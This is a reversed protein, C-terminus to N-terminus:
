TKGGNGRSIGLLKEVFEYGDCDIFEIKVNLKKELWGPTIDDLFMDKDYRLMASSLFLRSGLDKGRLQHYIDKGTLLGAVTINQGFFDNTIPYVTCDLNPCKETLRDVLKKIFGCAATGTAISCKRPKIDYGELDELMHDFEDSMSRIMGVGNEIQPYGDYRDGAPFDREAKIYLEDAAYFVSLDHKKRCESAYKEVTDIISSSEEKSFPELHFLGERYKTLGAPVVSVSSVRPVLNLLDSLTRELEQGDNVGKCLVIQCHMEIGSDAFRKMIDYCKGAFRNNLMYERLDPNTTHVSINIPSMRMEIIRSIDKEDMNTMTIYNGMLFSLRSDDDKFYLSERMGPPLQDIFCFICKNRCSKKEDMLFTEFELGIDDYRKKRIIVDFLEPGRHILLRIKPETIYYRYDLVDNIDKGNIRVLYDGRRIGATDAPSGSLVNKITVM